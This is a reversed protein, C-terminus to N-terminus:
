EQDWPAMEPLVFSMYLSIYIYFKSLFQFVVDDFFQSNLFIPKGEGEYFDKPLREETLPSFIRLYIVACISLTFTM